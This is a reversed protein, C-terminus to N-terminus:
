KKRECRVEIALWDDGVQRGVVSVNDGPRLDSLQAEKDNILIQADEDLQVRKEPESNPKLVFEQKEASVNVVKGKTDGALAVATCTLTLILAAVFLAGYIKPLHRM